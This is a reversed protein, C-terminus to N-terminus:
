GTNLAKAAAVAADRTIHQSVVLPLATSKDVVQFSDTTNRGDPLRIPTRHYTVVYRNV